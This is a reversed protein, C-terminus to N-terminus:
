QKWRQVIVANKLGADGVTGDADIVKVPFAHNLTFERGAADNYAHSAVFLYVDSVPQSSDFRHLLKKGNAFRIQVPTDGLPEPDAPATTAAESSSAAETPEEVGIVEGPVPSGLRHGQGHYGGPRRRPPVYDEETKKYVQVDVDQGFEVDLLLVPVRGQNLERLVAENAPDDYRHLPGDGVTFGQRWFTIERTVKAPREVRDGAVLESPQTGDGLKFGTGVFQARSLLLPQQASPRDDAEGMQEQARRFIQDILSQDNHGNGGRDPGEVALGLKEGGTFLNNREDDDGRTAGSDFDRLTRVGGGGGGSRSTAGSTAGTTPPPTNTPQTAYYDDVAARVDNHNRRLYQAALDSSAGTLGVFEAVAHADLM